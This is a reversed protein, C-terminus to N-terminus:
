GEALGARRLGELFDELDAQNALPWVSKIFAESLNPQFRSGAKLADRAEDLRGLRGCAAVLQFHPYLFDPNKVIAKRALNAAEEYDGLMYKALGQFSDIIFTLPDRPSLKRTIEHQEIAAEPQGLFAYLNGLYLHGTAYSPNLKIATEGEEQSEAYQGDNYKCWAMCAHAHANGADLALARSAHEKAEALAAEPSGLWNLVTSWLATESIMAHAMSMEPDLRLADLFLQRAEAFDEPTFGSHRSQGRLFLDYANLNEPPKRLALKQQAVSLEPMIASALKMTIEDQVSFVDELERDYPEAWIHHGTAADILQATIRVRGGVKRVSGEVVYRAGLEKAVQRVDPSKGKFAFTSNRAIVPFWGCKALETIIDETIGDAFYEQEADDSMNDFPLVAVAPRELVEAATGAPGTEEDPLGAPEPSLDPAAAAPAAPQIAYVRVPASVNKVEHEGCDEYNANIRNRISEYVMGSISIGGPDALAEIRAAVNVGEGHIDEGDDIIDGLNVGMRFNLNSVVLGEQIAIACNVADQVTPFEVLFGDGTLKVINGSYEGVRPKIVDERADQWAAVTGDSDEEILRTYGAVDAALIAALRRQVSRDAM